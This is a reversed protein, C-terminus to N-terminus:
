DKGDLMWITAVDCLGIQIRKLKVSHPAIDYPTNSQAQIGQDGSVSLWFFIILFVSIAQAVSVMKVFKIPQIDNYPTVLYNVYPFVKLLHIASMKTLGKRKSELDKSHNLMCLNSSQAM